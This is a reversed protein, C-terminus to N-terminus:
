TDDDATDPTSCAMMTTGDDLTYLLPDNDADTAVVANGVSSGAKATERVARDAQTGPTEDDEDLFSPQSNSAPRREVAFATEASASDRGTGLGDSYTATARLYYGVDGTKPAYTSSTAGAIDTWGGPGDVEVVAM